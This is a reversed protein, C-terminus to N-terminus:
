KLSFPFNNYTPVTLNFDLLEFNHQVRLSPYATATISYNDSIQKESKTEKWETGQESSELWM